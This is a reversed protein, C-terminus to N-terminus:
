LSLHHKIEQEAKLWDNLESGPEHGRDKFLPYARVSILASVCEIPQEHRQNLACKNIDPGDM